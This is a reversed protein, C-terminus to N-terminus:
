SHHAVNIITDCLQFSNRSHSILIVTKGELALQKLHQLMKLESLEDLESFPEDLLILDANKYLARAIAIRKRQGGSLNKGGEMIQQQIGNPFRGVVERLGTVELIENLRDNNYENEFLVINNLLSDHLIFPDQKVYAIKSWHAIRAGCDVVKGDFLVAGADPEYFGLLLQLLTTKGSGSGGKLGIFSGANISCNFEELVKLKNYSFHINSFQISGIKQVSPNEKRPEQFHKITGEITYQYTEVQRSLNIIRSISPIIKYAAAMFAGVIVVDANSIATAYKITVILIFLGLIAFVEFIRPPLDQITQMDAVNDGVTQQAKQHRDIFFSNKHYLNSEVYGKLTENLYQLSQEVVNKMSKKIKEVRKKTLWSLIVLAPLMTLFVILFLKGNYIM